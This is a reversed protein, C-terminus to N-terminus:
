KVNPNIIDDLTVNEGYIENALDGLGDIGIPPNMLRHSIWIKNEPFTDKILKIYKDQNKRQTKCMECDLFQKQIIRNVHVADLSVYEKTEMHARKIEEYSPKEAISVLRLSGENKILDAIRSGRREISNLMQVIEKSSNKM